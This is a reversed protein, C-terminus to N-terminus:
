AAAELRWQQRRAEHLRQSAAAREARAADAKKTAARLVKRAEILEMESTLQKDVARHAEQELQQIHPTM